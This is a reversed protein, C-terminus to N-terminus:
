SRKAWAGLKADWHHSPDFAREDGSALGAGDLPVSDVGDHFGIIWAERLIIALGVSGMIFGGWFVPNGSNNSMVSNGGLLLVGGTALRLRSYKPVVAAPRLGSRADSSNRPGAPASEARSASCDCM